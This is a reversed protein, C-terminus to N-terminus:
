SSGKGLFSIPTPILGTESRKAMGELQTYRENKGHLSKGAGPFFLKDSFVGRLREAVERLNLAAIMEDKTRALSIGGKLPGNPLFTANYSL